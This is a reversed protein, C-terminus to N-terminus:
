AAERQRLQEQIAPMHTFLYDIDTPTTVRGFSFRITGYQGDDAGIAKLVHSIKDDGASCASGASVAVGIQNLSLLLSGSDVDPFGISLNHPLRNELAGNVVAGPVTEDLRDLFRDRLALYRATDAERERWALEAALGLAMIGLVNETGARLGSEQAGGHVLPPLDLTPDIYLAGAGKPAYIKHGSLSLMSIGMEQPRIPV